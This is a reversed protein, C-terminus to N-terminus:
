TIQWQNRYKAKLFSVQTFLIEFDENSYEKNAYNKDKEYSDIFHYDDVTSFWPIDNNRKNFDVASEGISM